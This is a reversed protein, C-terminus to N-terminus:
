FQGTWKMFYNVVLWIGCMSGFDSYDEKLSDLCAKASRFFTKVTLKTDKSYYM